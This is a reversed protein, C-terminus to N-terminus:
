QCAFTQPVRTRSAWPTHHKSSSGQLQVSSGCFDAYFTSLFHYATTSADFNILAHELARGVFLTRYHRKHSATCRGGYVTYSVVSHTYVSVTSSVPCVSYEYSILVLTYTYQTDRRSPRSGAWSATLECVTVYQMCYQICRYDYPGTRPSTPAACRLATGALAPRLRQDM